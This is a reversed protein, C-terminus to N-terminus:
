NHLFFWQLGGLGCGLQPMAVSKIKWERYHDKLYILGADIWELRSKSRWHDKTPFFIVWPIKWEFDDLHVELQCLMLKGPRLIGADCAAKYPPLYEPYRQKFEKAIGKGM